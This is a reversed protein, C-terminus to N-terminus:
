AIQLFASSLYRLTPKYSQPEQIGDFSYGCLKQSAFSQAVRECLPAVINGLAYCSAAAFDAACIVIIWRLNCSQRWSSGRNLYRSEANPAQKKQSRFRSEQIRNEM